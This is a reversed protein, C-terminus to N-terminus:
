ASKDMDWAIRQGCPIILDIRKNLGGTAHRFGSFDDTAFATRAIPEAPLWMILALRIVGLSLEEVCTYFLRSTYLICGSLVYM